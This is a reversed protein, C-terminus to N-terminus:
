GIRVMQVFFTHAADTGNNLAQFQPLVNSQFDGWRGLGGVRFMEHSRRGVVTKSLSGPRKLQGPFIMRYAIGNTSIGEMGVVAYRGAPFSTEWTTTLTTWTNAVAATTSTVRTTVIQGPPAPDFRDRLWLLIHLNENGAGLDSTAQVALEEAQPLRIPNDRYDAVAPNDPPLLAATIPLVYPNAVYRLTPSDLRVRNLTASSAYAAVLESPENLVFHTNQITLVDDRLADIDTNVTQGIAEFYAALHLM